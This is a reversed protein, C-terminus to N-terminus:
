PGRHRAEDVRRTALVLDDEGLVGGLRDVQQGLDPSSSVEALAVNDQEALHFVV